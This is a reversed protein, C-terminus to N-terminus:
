GVSRARAVAEGRSSADLKDLINHMHNKVTSLSIGLQNAIAKNSLGDEVFVMIEAERRTLSAGEHHSRAAALHALRRLVTAAVRPSCAAEGRAAREVALVLDDLSERRNVWGIVGSEAWSIVDPESEPAALLIVGISPADRLIARIAATGDTTTADVIIVDPRLGAIYSLSASSSDLAAVVDIGGRSSLIEALGECYLRIDAILGVRIVQRTAAVRVGSGYDTREAGTRV